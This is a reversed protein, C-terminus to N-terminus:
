FVEEAEEMQNQQFLIGGLAYRVPQKVVWPKDYKLGDQLYVAKQLLDFAENFKGEHYLIASSSVTHNHLTRIGAESSSSLILYTLKKRPM